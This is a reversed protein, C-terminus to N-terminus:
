ELEEDYLVFYLERIDEPTWGAYNGGGSEHDPDEVLGYFDNQLSNLWRNAYDGLKQINPIFIEEIRQKVKDSAGDARTRLEMVLKYEEPEEPSQSIEPNSKM